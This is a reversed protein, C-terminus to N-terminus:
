PSLDEPAAEVPRPARSWRRGRLLDRTGWRAVALLAERVIANSMKSAGLSRERFTIPVEEIQFGLQWARYTMDIQFAYGNSRVQPLDIAELVVRRYCRFGSTSDKVKFGLLMRDYINGGWSLLHRARSWGQVAGGRVYRSGVAVHGRAATALLAPLAAPDHSFDADMEVFFEYGAELGWGFGRVYAAGLGQKGTGRLLHVRADGEAAAAVVEATGDPSGDDVVLVSAGPVAAHVAQLIAGINEAENYTPVVVLARQWASM